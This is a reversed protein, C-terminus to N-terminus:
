TMDFKIMWKIVFFNCFFKLNQTITQVFIVFFNIISLM